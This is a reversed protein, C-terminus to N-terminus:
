ILMILNQLKILAVYYDMLSKDYKISFGLTGVYNKHKENELVRRM